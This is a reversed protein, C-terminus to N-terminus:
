LPVLKTHDDLRVYKTMELKEKETRVTRLDVRQLQCSSGRVRPELLAERGQGLM